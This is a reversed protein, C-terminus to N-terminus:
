ESKKTEPIKLAGENVLVQLEEKAMERVQLDETELFASIIKSCHGQAWLRCNGSLAKKYLISAFAPCDLVLRRITRSSHFDELIHESKKEPEQTKPMAAVSAIAEYLERLKESMSPCLIGDAGGMAVEYMVEKGVNSKLFEEANEMCVDILREALGSNVLLEQRRLLPDKKSAAVTVKEEIDTNETVTDEQEDKLEEGSEKGDSDKTESSTESKDMLCLSPVSLDLSALDDHSFYRSYNPHLLQLLPRRGNKEMVLDKLTAELERVIMKTVLKTDDVISFICALVMSGFQDSAMKAVHDKMAKIIKKREKASGHKICLMALRSGDRTHVMRLLLPGTLQQIVFAASTKDAITLYEILLKHIISHDVIGKELIPQIIGTMHRVVTGKQLGRKAIIDVVRKETASTLGKFLQLEPSYLEGLLEQKQAATGLNYAYEVVISGVMHRLLPAVHRRLSSIYDTLQQKSAGDLMKKLLHVAYTNTALNLFHPQLEKFVAEKEAQSCYKVCTQLVRSSLHSVAIEPIKGKMKQIAESILKSRDEKGIDRRRMKEWLSALEQELTYHPKRRKKRAETLEKAQVRREKKSLTVSKDKDGFSKPKGFKPQEPKQNQITHSKKDPTSSALKPKKSKLANFKESSESDKRKTSKQMKLGTSAM